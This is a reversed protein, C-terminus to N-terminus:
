DAEPLGTALAMVEREFRHLAKPSLALRPSLVEVAV